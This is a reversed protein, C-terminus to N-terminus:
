RKQFGIRKQSGWSGKERLASFTSVVRHLSIIQRYGFNEIIGIFMLVITEKISYFITKREAIFLSFLSIIIGYVITVAFLLLVLPTNLLGFILGIILALYGMMEIFPGVMEFIFFYPFAIMGPQKYRPNFLMKRHYSLIDLLGRQWRNRQKLLSHYDSPLETYCNAHHVYTVKFPKKDKLARYTLRVVLEMDEGVTDKKLEGSVTLYGGTHILTKRDFLGFAGSIILLSNLKSWGIRGTTFARLYEITQFKVITKRGLVQKEVKGRDVVCDNVPVINGGLALHDKTNDLTVSMLKLLAEEELLSDADIGCVYDYKAANIGLNLADAKGGNQKDIVVLNPIRQNIYVGRLSKTKLKNKFFPHKRKLGFHDILVDITQDKSGDNVVIVEYTPYKLNLLSTVSEVISKEENYAPAIISISPLLDREFLFTDRKLDWLTLRESAGKLSLFLLIMYITNISLFYVVLYRNIDVVFQEFFNFSTDFLYKFNMIFSVMPLAIFGLLVWISIWIIKSKELPSKERQIVPQEKKLLGIKTLVSKNAYIELQEKIEPDRSAYQKIIPLYLRELELDKNHNIFDIFDEIMHLKFITEIIDLIYNYSGSKLKLILYDIDQALITAVVNKQRYETLEQYREIMYLLLDKSGFVINSIAITIEEELLDDKCLSLLIDIMQKTHTEGCALIAKKRVWLEQHYLFHHDVLLHPYQKVLVSLAKRRLHEDFLSENFVRLTYDKLDNELHYSAIEIMLYSIEQQHNAYRHLQTLYPKLIVYHNAFLNKMWKQYNVSSDKLTELMHDVIEQDLFRMFHYSLFFLVTENKEKMLSKKLATISTKTRLQAVYFIAEKRKMASLSNLQKYKKQVFKTQELDDVIRKRIDDDIQVQTEIDIFVDFFFHADFHNDINKLDFYKAFVFDRVEGQLRNKKSIMLKQIIIFSILVGIIGGSFLLVIIAQDLTM